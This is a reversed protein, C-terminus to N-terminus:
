SPIASTESAFEKYSRKPVKKFIARLLDLYLPLQALAFFSIPLCTVGYIPFAAFKLKDHLEFFHGACFSVLMAAISTFLSTLGLILKRPLKSAFDKEEFRSTLIALFFVLATISSCLAVLSSIAFVGFAPENQLIPKGTEQNVGGPISAATAFAVTAILAAIVSCSESTKTLWESGDKVLAKHTETFIQKPTQGKKNYHVLLYKAMSKKVFKYWKIEWQMQLASGPILWPKYNGYTAALHLANNGQNDWHHFVADHLNKKQTLFQLVHTQRNEVALLLVNKNEADVDQIAVPFKELIKDVMETIGKSAAIIIPSPTEVKRSESGVKKEFKMQVVAHKSTKLDVSGIIHYDGLSKEVMIADDEKMKSSGTENKPEKPKKPASSTSEGNGSSTKGGSNGQDTDQHHTPSPSHPLDQTTKAIDGSSTKGGSNGQDTDQHHTPSPGHPLDQTTKAIDGSLTKGGSNGQDTDQHDSSTLMLSPSRPFNIMEDTNGCGTKGLSYKYMSTDNDIMKNLVQKAWTHRQKKTTIKRIRQFGLGLVVLVLKMVFKLFQKITAYNAPLYHERHEVPTSPKDEGDEKPKPTTGESTNTTRQPNEEDGKSIIKKIINHNIHSLSHNWGSSCIEFFSPMGYFAVGFIMGFFQECTEYNKPFLPPPLEDGNEKFRKLYDASDYKEDKLEDVIICRYLIRDFLGLRSCSKFANTKTALVHLPSFGNINVAEVLKPYKCIIKFALEFHEGSIAAHLITDGSEDRRSCLDRREEETCCFYLCLLADKCGFQASLFFPTENNNNREAILNPAKSAMCYCMHANGLAAATHLPTNGRKNKAKLAESANEGLIKAMEQVVQLKGGSVALHFATDEAETIKATRCEPKNKYDEMVKEWQDKMAYEFLMGSLALDVDAEKTEPASPKGVSVPETMEKKQNQEIM